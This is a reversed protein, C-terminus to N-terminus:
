DNNIVLIVIIIPLKCHGLNHLIIYNVVVFSLLSNFSFICNFKIFIKKM